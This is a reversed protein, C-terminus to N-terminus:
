AAGNYFCEDARAAEFDRAAQEAAAGVYCAGSNPFFFVRAGAAFAGGHAASNEPAARRSRYAM